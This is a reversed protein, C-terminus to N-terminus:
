PPDMEAQYPLPLGQHEVGDLSLQIDYVHETGLYATTIPIVLRIKSGVFRKLYAEETPPGDLKLRPMTFMADIDTGFLAAQTSRLTIRSRPPIHTDGASVRLSRTEGTVSVISCRNLDLTMESDTRNEIQIYYVQSGIRYGIRVSDDQYVPPSVDFRAPLAQCGLVLLTLAALVTGARLARATM